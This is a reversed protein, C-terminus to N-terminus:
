RRPQALYRETQMENLRSAARRFEPRLREGQYLAEPPAEASVVLKTGREYLTDILNIFRRAADDREAGMRPVGSLLLTPYLQALALYDAAARPTECLTAFDLWAVGPGARRAPLPRGCVDLTTAGPEAHPALREFRAALLARADADDPTLYVAASRLERLRYDTDGTLELVQTHRELLAIAPLFRERQLGDRYLGAPPVNSTAVLTVGHAFLAEFLRGLIMADAIDDVQFEDFCLVRAQQAIEAAIPLLPDRQGDDHHHREHLELMFRHFHTRRRRSFPLSEYFADMLYTKGRGVTGWLYLGRVPPWELQGSILHRHPRREILESRLSELADIAREQAPDRAFGQQACDRAYRERPSLTTARPADM